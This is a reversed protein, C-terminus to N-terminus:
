VNLRGLIEYINLLKEQLARQLEPNSKFKQELIDGAQKKFDEVTHTPSVKADEGAMGMLTNFDEQAYNLQGSVATLRSGALGAKFIRPIFARIKALRAGESLEGSESKM